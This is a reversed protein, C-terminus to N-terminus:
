FLCFLFDHESDFMGVAYHYIRMVFYLNRMHPQEYNYYYYFGSARKDSLNRLPKVM